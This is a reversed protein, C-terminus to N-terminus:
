NPGTLPPEYLLPARLEFIVGQLQDALLAVRRQHYRMTRWLRDREEALLLVDRGYYRRNYPGRKREAATVPVYPATSDGM